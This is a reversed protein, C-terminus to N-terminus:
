VRRKLTFIHGTVLEHQGESCNQCYLLLGGYINKEPAHLLNVLSCGHWTRNWYLQLTVRNLDCKPLPTRRYIQQMNESCRKKLVRFYSKKISLHEKIYIYIYMYSNVLVQCFNSWFLNSLLRLSRCVQVLVNYLELINHGPNYTGVKLAM